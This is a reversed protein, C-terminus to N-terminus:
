SGPLMVVDTLFNSCHQAVCRLMTSYLNCYYSSLTSSTLRRRKSCTLGPGNVRPGNFVGTINRYRCCLLAALSCKLSPIRKDEHYDM